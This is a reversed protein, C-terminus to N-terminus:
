NLDRVLEEAIRKCNEIEEQTLFQHANELTVPYDKLTFHSQNKGFLFCKKKEPKEHKHAVTKVGKFNLDVKM